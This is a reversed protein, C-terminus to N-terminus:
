AGGYTKQCVQTFPCKPCWQYAPNPFFEGAQIIRQGAKASHLAWRVMSPKVEVSVEQVFPKETYILGLLRIGKPVTGAVAQGAAYLLMKMDMSLEREAQAKAKPNDESYFSRGKTKHDVIWVDGTQKDRAVLDPIGHVRLPGAIGPPLSVWKQVAIPQLRQGWTHTYAVVADLLRDRCEEAALKLDWEPVRRRFDEFARKGGEILDRTPHEVGLVLQHNWYGNLLLDIWNGLEMSAKAPQAFKRVYEFEYRASCGTALSLRSPSLAPTLDPDKPGQREEAQPLDPVVGDLEEVASM